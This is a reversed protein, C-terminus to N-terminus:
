ARRGGRSCDRGASGPIAPRTACIPCSSWAGAHGRARRRRRCAWCRRSGAASRRLCFAWSIAPGGRTSSCEPWSSLCSARWSPSWSPGPVAPARRCGPRRAPLRPTTPSFGRWCWKRWCPAGLVRWRLLYHAIAPGIHNAVVAADQSVPGGTHHVDGLNRVLQFDLGPYATQLKERDVRALDSESGRQGPTTAPVNVAFLYEHPDQGVTMHYIGAQDTETWRFVQIDDTGQTRASRPAAHEQGPLVVHSELEVGGVLFEELMGGVITQQERLRGSVAFRTLEQVMAGFSPSGPWTNWDM